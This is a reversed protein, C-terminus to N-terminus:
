FVIGMMVSVAGNRVDREFEPDNGIDTVSLVYRVDFTYRTRVGYEFGAGVIFSFDTDTFQDWVSNEFSEEFDVGLLVGTLDGSFKANTKYAFSGGTYANFTFGPRQYFLPGRDPLSTSVRFLLPIEIYTLTVNGDLKLIQGFIDVNESFRTGRTTYLLESQVSFLDTVNYRILGGISFRSSLKPNLNLTIEDTVEGDSIQETFIYGGHFYSANISGKFGLDLKQAIVPSNLVICLITILFLSTKVKMNAISM